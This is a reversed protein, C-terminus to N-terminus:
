KLIYTLTSSGKITSVPFTKESAIVVSPAVSLFPSKQSFQIMLRLAVKDYKNQYM